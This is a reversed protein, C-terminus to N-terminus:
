SSSSRPYRFTWVVLFMSAMLVLIIVPALDDWFYMEREEKETVYRVAGHNVSVRYVQGTAMVPAHPASGYIDAQKNLVACGLYIWLALGCALLLKRWWQLDELSRLEGYGSPFIYEM